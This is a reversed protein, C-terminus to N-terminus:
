SPRRRRQGLALDIRDDLRWNDEANWVAHFLAELQSQLDPTDSAPENRAPRQGRSKLNATMNAEFGGAM